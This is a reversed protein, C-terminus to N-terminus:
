SEDSITTIAETIATSLFGITTFNYNIQNARGYNFGRSSYNKNKDSIAPSVVIQTTYNYIIYLM